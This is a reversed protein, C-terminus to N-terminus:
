QIGMLKKAIDLPFKAGWNAIYEKDEEEDTTNAQGIYAKEERGNDIIVIGVCDKGSFWICDKITKM